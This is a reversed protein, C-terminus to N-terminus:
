CVLFRRGAVPAIFLSKRLQLYMLGWKTAGLDADSPPQTEFEIELKDIKRRKVTGAGAGVGTQLALYHASLYIHACDAKNGWCALNIQACACSLAFQVVADGGELTATTWTLTASSSALTYLSCPGTAVSQVFVLNGVAGANVLASAGLATAINAATADDDVGIEFQNAAPAGAVATWTEVRPPFSQTDTITFSDGALVGQVALESKSTPGVEKFDPAQTLFEALTACNMAM